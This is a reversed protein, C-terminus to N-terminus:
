KDAEGRDFRVEVGYREEGQTTKNLHKEARKAAKHGRKVHYAKQKEEAKAKAAKKAKDYAETTVEKGERGAEAFLTGMGTAVDKGAAGLLSAGRVAGQGVKKAKARVKEARQANRESRADRRDQREIQSLQRMNAKHQKRREKHTKAAEARDRAEQRREAVAQNKETEAQLKARDKADRKAQKTEAKAEREAQKAVALDQKEQLHIAKNMQRDAIRQEKRAQAAKARAEVGNLGNEMSKAIKEGARAPSTIVSVLKSTAKKGLASLVKKGSELKEKADTKAGEIRQAGYVSAGKWLESAQDGIDSVVESATRREALGDRAETLFASVREAARTVSAAATELAVVGFREPNQPGEEVAPDVPDAAFLEADTFEPAEVAAKEHDTPSMVEPSSM